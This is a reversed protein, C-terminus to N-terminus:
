YVSPEKKMNKSSVLLYLGIGGFMLLSSTTIKTAESMSTLGVLYEPLIYFVPLVISILTKSWISIGVLVAVAIAAVIMNGTSGLTLIPTKVYNDAFLLGAFLAISLFSVLYLLSFEKTKSLKRSAIFKFSFMYVLLLLICVLPYGVLQLVSYEFSDFFIDKLVIGAFAGLIIIPVYKSWGKVDFSMEKSLQEMYEKPSSGIIHEVGQNRKEAEYLHLELEQTIEDIEKTKKGSSFLYIRLNDIFDRSEKTLTVDEM